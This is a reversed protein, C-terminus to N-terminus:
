TRHTENEMVEGKFVLNKPEKKSLNEIFQTQLDDIRSELEGSAMYLRTPDFSLSAKDLEAIMMNDNFWLSPSLLLYKNFVESKKLLVYNGFLGGYSHGYIARENDQVRYNEAILPFLENSLFQSFKEAGGTPDRMENSDIPTLDRSRLRYFSDYDTDYAIGVVLIPPILKNKILRQVIYSTGGFNTEADTVYLVPYSDTGEEYGRPLKIKITYSQGNYKSKLATIETNALSVESHNQLYSLETLQRQIETSDNRLRDNESKLVDYDQQPVGCSLLFILILLAFKM